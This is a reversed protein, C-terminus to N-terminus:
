GVIGKDALLAHLLENSPASGKASQKRLSKITNFGWSRQVLNVMFSPLAGRPDCHVEAVVHTRAGGDLSTLVFVSDKMDARVYRTSPAAADTVSRMHVTLSRKAKDASVTVDTVLDRDTVPGPMALHSYLIYEVDSVKRLVRAEVVNDIWDKEHPVDVLVDGVAELPADVDGEGRFALFPSGAIEKRSVVIGDDTRVREWGGDGAFALGPLAAILLAAVTAATTIARKPLGMRRRTLGMVQRMVFDAWRTPMARLLAVGVSAQFPVMTRAKPRRATAAREIARTVVAPGVATKESLRVLQDTRDLVAQYPSGPYRTKDVEQLSRDTFGTRIVGPEILSVHVGFPGLEMRLADSLSEVAFKTSNYVGFFPLTYVGGLSSVNIIRGHGRERMPGVFARIMAMLGFVNVDYQARMDQDSISETPGLAGYGASNVLVDVGYGDTMALVAEKVADISAPDAVDLRLAEMGNGSARLEALAAENRGTAIVRHGRAALHLAAHKGIGSTAGTILITQRKM